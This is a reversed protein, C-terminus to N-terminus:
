PLNVFLCVCGMAGGRTISGECVGGVQEWHHAQMAPNCGEAFLPLYHKFEDIM